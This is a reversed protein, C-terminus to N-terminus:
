SSESGQELVLSFEKLTSQFVLCLGGYTYKERPVEAVLVFITIGILALSVSIPVFTLSKATLNAFPGGNPFKGIPDNRFTIEPYIWTKLLLWTQM